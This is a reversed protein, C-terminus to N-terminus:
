LRLTKRAPLWDLSITRAKAGKVQFCLPVSAGKAAAARCAPDYGIAGPAYSTSGELLVFQRKLAAPSYSTGSLSVVVRIYRFGFPAIGGDEAARLVPSLDSPRYPDQLSRVVLREGGARACAVAGCTGGSSRSTRAPQSAVVYVGSSVVAVVVATAIGIVPTVKSGGNSRLSERRAVARALSAEDPPEVVWAGLADFFSRPATSSMRRMLARRLRFGLAVLAGAGALFIAAAVLVHRGAWVSLRGVLLTEAEAFWLGVAIASAPM